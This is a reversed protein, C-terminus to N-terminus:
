GRQATLQVGKSEAEFSQLIKKQFPLKLGLYGESDVWQAVYDVGCQLFSLCTGM